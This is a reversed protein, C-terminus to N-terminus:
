NSLLVAPKRGLYEAATVLKVNEREATKWVRMTHERFRKERPLHHDYIITEAGAERVIRVANDLARELNIRNLTYGLMYTMPGDLIITNPKEDIIWQAYDEIIPGNLDSTYLIKYKGKEVTFGVVWGVRSFEVGHFMPETFKVRAGGYEFTLNDNFLLKTELGDKFNMEPIRGWSKWKEVRREFWKFGKRLLNMKREWYEGYDRSLAMELKGIPDPYDGVKAEAMLDDMDVQGILRFLKGYFKLARRRQSDNIYENPNKALIIRGMYKLSEPDMYHDYHYHTIIIIDVKEATERIRREGERMWELKLNYSAPFSPHMIAVGPDVLIATDELEILTCSSKAGFSDFWILKFNLM